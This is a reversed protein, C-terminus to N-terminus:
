GLPMVAARSNPYMFVTKELNVRSHGALILPRALCLYRSCDIAEESACGGFGQESSTPHLERSQLLVLTHEHTAVLTLSSIWSM